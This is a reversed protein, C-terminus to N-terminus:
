GYCHRLTKFLGIYVNTTSINRVMDDEEHTYVAKAWLDHRCVLDKPSNPM